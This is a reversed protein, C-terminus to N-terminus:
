GGVYFAMRENNNSGGGGMYTFVHATNRVLSICSLEEESLASIIAPANGIMYGNKIGFSPYRQKNLASRCKKCVVFGKRKKDYCANPSIVCDRLWQCSDGVDYKYYSIIDSPLTASLHDEMEVNTSDLMFLHKYQELTKLKFFYRDEQIHLLLCDCCFCTKPRFVGDDDFVFKDLAADLDSACVNPLKYKHVM